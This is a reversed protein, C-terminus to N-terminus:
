RRELVDRIKDKLARADPDRWIEEVEEKSLEEILAEPPLDLLYRRRDEKATAQPSISDEHVRPDVGRLVDVVDALPVKRYRSIFAPTDGDEYDWLITERNM